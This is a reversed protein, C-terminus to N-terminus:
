QEPSRGDQRPNLSSKQFSAILIVLHPMRQAINSEGFASFAHSFPSLVFVVMAMENM